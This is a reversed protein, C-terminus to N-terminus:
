FAQQVTTDHCSFPKNRYSNSNRFNNRIGHNRWVQRYNQGQQRPQSTRGQLGLYIKLNAALRKTGTHNNLHVNGYYAREDIDTGNRNLTIHSNDM